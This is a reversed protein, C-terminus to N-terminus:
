AVVPATAGDARNYLDLVAWQTGDWILEATDGVDAFAITSDTFSTPTLTGTGGGDVVMQIVKVQGAVTGDALTWATAGAGSQVDSKHETVTVAGAGSLAQPTGAIFVPATGAVPATALISLPMYEPVDGVDDNPDRLVEMFAGSPVETLRARHEFGRSGRM